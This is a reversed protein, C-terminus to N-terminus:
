MMIKPNVIHELFVDNDWQDYGEMMVPLRNTGRDIDGLAGTLVHYAYDWPTEQDGLTDAEFSGDDIM